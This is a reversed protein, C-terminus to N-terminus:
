TASQTRSSAAPRALMLRRWRPPHASRGSWRRTTSNPTARASGADVAFVNQADPPRKIAAPGTAASLSPMARCAAIWCILSRCGATFITSCRKGPLSPFNKTLVDERADNEPSYYIGWGARVAMRSGARWAIGVRPAFNNRDPKVLADSNGGRGAILMQQSTFNFNAM